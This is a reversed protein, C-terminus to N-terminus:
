TYYNHTFNEPIGPILVGHALNMGPAAESADSRRPWFYIQCKLKLFLVLLTM